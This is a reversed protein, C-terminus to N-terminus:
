PSSQLEYVLKEKFSASIGPSDKVLKVDWNSDPKFVAFSVILLIQFFVYM